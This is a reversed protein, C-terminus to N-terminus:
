TPSTPSGADGNNPDMENLSIELFARALSLSSGSAPDGVEGVHGVSSTLLLSGTVLPFSVALMSPTDSTESKGNVTVSTM